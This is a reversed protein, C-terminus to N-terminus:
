IFILNYFADDVQTQCDTAGNNEYNRNTIRNTNKNMSIYNIPVELM